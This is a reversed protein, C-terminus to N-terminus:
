VTTYISAQVAAVSHYFYGKSNLYTESIKKLAVTFLEKILGGTDTGEEGM